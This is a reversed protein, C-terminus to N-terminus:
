NKKNRKKTLTVSLARAQTHKGRVTLEIGTGSKQSKFGRRAKQAIKKKKEKKSGALTRKEIDLPEAQERGEGKGDPSVISGGKRRNRLKKKEERGEGRPGKQEVKEKGARVQVKVGV